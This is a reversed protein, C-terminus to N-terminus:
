CMVGVFEKSWVSKRCEAIRRINSVCSRVTGLTSYHNKGWCWHVWVYYVFSSVLSCTALQTRPGKCMSGVLYLLLCATSCAHQAHHWCSTCQCHKHCWQRQVRWCHSGVSYVYYCFMMGKSPWHCYSSGVRYQYVLLVITVTALVMIIIIIVSYNNVCACLAYRYYPLRYTQRDTHSKIVLRCLPICLSLLCLLQDNCEM